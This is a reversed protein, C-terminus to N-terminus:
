APGATGTAVVPTTPQLLGYPNSNAQPSMQAAKEQEAAAAAAAAEAERAKAGRPRRVVGGRSGPGGGRGTGRGRSSGGRSGRGTAGDGRTSAGGRTSGRARGGRSGRGRKPAESHIGINTQSGKLAELFLSHDYPVAPKEVEPVLPGMYVFFGDKSCAAQEEWLLESDDVFDDDRDYEDEKFQRKKRAPKVPGEVGSVGGGANDTAAENDSGEDTMEDGSERGSGNGSKELASAAAAIRAKRDRNAAQRPHLADWGYKEEAMKMFNVYKNTEGPRIPVKLLINPAQFEEGPRAKGFDLISRESGPADDLNNTKPSSAATNNAKQKPSPKKSGANSASDKVRAELKNIPGVGSRKPEKAEKAEKGNTEKPEAAKTTEEHAAKPAALAAPQRSHSPSPPVSTSEPQMRTPATTFSQHSPQPSLVAPMPDVLSAISPSASTRNLAQATPARPSSVAHTGYPDRSIMTERVPDYNCRIPDYNQGSTRIPVDTANLISQMSGVHPERKPMKQPYEQSAARTEGLGTVLDTIKPQRLASTTNATAASQSTSGTAVTFGDASAALSKSDAGVSVDANPAAKRKRQVPPANPDKPEKPKRPRRQKPPEPTGDAAVKPKVTSGPKRGPKKRPLGAATLQVPKGEPGVPFRTAAPESVVIEDMEVGKRPAVRSPSGPPSLSGSPPSSLELSSSYHAAGEERTTM